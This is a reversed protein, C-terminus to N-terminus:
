LALRAMTTVVIIESGDGSLTEFRWALRAAYDHAITLLGLNSEGRDTTVNRKVQQMYLEHIDSGLLLQIRQQFAEVADPDVANSAYFRFEDQFL